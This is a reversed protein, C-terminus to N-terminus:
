SFIQGGDVILVQGTVFAAAPSALWQVAGVVDGPLMERSISRSAAAAALYSDDNRERSAEDSVLGPAVANVRIGHCGFERAAARTLGDIAAKSAVYHPFGTVGTRASSSSFNIISGCQSTRMIPAVECIMQWTGRVNVRMVRDFEEATFSEWPGRPSLTRYIAAANVLVDPDGFQRRGHDVAAAVSAADTIDAAVFLLGGIGAASVEDELDRCAGATSELDLAIVGAGAAAFASAVAAGIGGGAGTVMVTGGDFSRSRSNM